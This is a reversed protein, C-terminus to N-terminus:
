SKNFHSKQPESNHRRKHLKHTVRVEALQQTQSYATEAAELTAEAQQVALELEEREVTALPTNKKVTDGEDVNLEIIHGAIKPFVNVQSEAQITGSLELESRIEGRKAEAIEVPKLVATSEMQEIEPKPSKLFRPLVLIAAIVVVIFIVILTNKM